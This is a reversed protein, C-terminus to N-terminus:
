FLACWVGKFELNRLFTRGCNLIQNMTLDVDKKNMTEFINRKSLVISNGKKHMWRGNTWPKPSYPKLFKPM